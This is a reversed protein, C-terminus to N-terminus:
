GNRKESGFFYGTAASLGVTIATIFPTFTDTLDCKHAADNLIADIDWIGFGVFLAAFVLFIVLGAQNRGIDRVVTPSELERLEINRTHFRSTTEPSDDDDNANM